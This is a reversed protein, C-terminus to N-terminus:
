QRPASSILQELRLLDEPTDADLFPRQDDFELRATRLTEALARPGANKALLARAAELAPGRRWLATLPELQGRCVPVAAEHDGLAATLADLLQADAAFPMDVAMSYVLDLPSWEFGAVLGALPTEIATGDEVLAVGTPAFRAYRQVDKAVLAVREFEAAAAALAHAVLPVGRFRALAKHSGFRRSRGGALVLAAVPRAM